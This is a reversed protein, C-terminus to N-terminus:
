EYGSKLHIFKFAFVSQWHEFNLRLRWGIVTEQHDSDDSDDLNDINDDDFSNDNPEGYLLIMKLSINPIIIYTGLTKLSIDDYYWDLKNM